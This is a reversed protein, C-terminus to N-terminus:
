IGTPSTVPPTDEVPPIFDTGGGGQQGGGAVPPLVSNVLTVLAPANTTPIVDQVGLAVQAVAAQQAPPTLGTRVAANAAALSTSSVLADVDAVNFTPDTINDTDTLATLTASTIERILDDFVTILREAIIPASRPSRRIAAAVLSAMQSRDAQIQAVIDDIEAATLTNGGADNAAPANNEGQAFASPLIWLGLALTFLKVLHTITRM